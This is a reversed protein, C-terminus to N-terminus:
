RLKPDIYDMGLKKFIDEESKTKIREGTTLKFLGYESLKYGKTKALQRMKKNLDASGTFYLLASHFSQYTVFRIDIRRVHNKKYKSFGMYKTDVDKDTMDDLLLPKNNNSKIDKKLRKILRMLHKTKKNTSEKTGLKTILVDIDGSKLKQRRYSGCIQLIYKKKESLEYKKNMKDIVKQLLTNIDTIEKRPIDKKVKGHYKLGLLVKDNVEIKNDKIQKKLINITTIGQNYFDLAKSRGVGIIEELENIAKTKSKKADKFNGLETLKDNDLIETIRELTGKGIGPLEGFESLNKKTIKEPYKKLIGLVKTFIRLRFNNKNLSKTDKKLRFEDSEEKIFAILREFEDIIKNNMIIIYVKKKYLM